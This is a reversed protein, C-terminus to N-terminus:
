RMVGKMLVKSDAQYNNQYEAVTRSLNKVMEQERKNLEELRQNARSIEDTCENLQKVQHERISLKRQEATVLREQQRVNKAQRITEALRFNNESITTKDNGNLHKEGFREAREWDRERELAALRDEKQQKKLAHSEERKIKREETQIKIKEQHMQENAIKAQLQMIKDNKVQHVRAADAKAKKIKKEFKKEQNELYNVRNLM